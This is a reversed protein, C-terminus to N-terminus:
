GVILSAAWAFGFFAGSISGLLIPMSLDHSIKIEPGKFYYVAVAIPISLILNGQTRWTAKVLPHEASLNVTLPAITAGPIVMLLLFGIGIYFNLTSTFALKVTPECPDIYETIIFGKAVMSQELVTISNESGDELREIASSCRRLLKIDKSSNIQKKMSDTFNDYGFINRVSNIPSHMMIQNEEKGIREEKLDLKSSIIM